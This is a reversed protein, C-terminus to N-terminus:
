FNRRAFGSDLDLSTNPTASTINSNVAPEEYVLAYELASESGAFDPGEQAGIAIKPINVSDEVEAIASTEGGQPVAISSATSITASSDPVVAGTMENNEDDGAFSDIEGFTLPAEMGIDHGSPRNLGSLIKLPGPSKAREHLYVRTRHATIL